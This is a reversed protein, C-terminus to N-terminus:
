DAKRTSFAPSAAVAVHLEKLDLGANVFRDRIQTIACADAATEPRGLVYRFGQVALCEQVQASSALKAALEVTGRFPGDIDRTGTLLGSDDIPQENDTQRHRGIGDLAEFGFGIPNMLTHCGTCAAGSTKADLQQRATLGSELAPLQTDVNPPPDAIHHCLLRQRVFRGRNVPSTRTRAALVSMVAPHGLLGPHTGPGALGELQTASSTVGFFPALRQNVFVQNGTLLTALRSDGEFLAHEVFAKASAALDERAPEFDPFTEADKPADALATIEFLQRYPEWLAPRAGETALLRRAESELNSADRLGGSNALATLQGDPPGETMTYALLTALEHDTLTIAGNQPEAGLESRYLFHPSQLMAEVLVELGLLADRKSAGLQFLEVYRSQESATLPRRFVSSGFTEVVTSACAADALSASAFAAFRALDGAVAAKALRQAAAQFQAAEPGRVRLSFADNQFGQESGPEPNFSAAPHSSDGLLASVSREYQQRTLRWIRRSSWGKTAENCTIPQPGGLPDFSPPVSAQGGSSGGAVNGSGDPSPSDRGQIAGQCGLAGLLCALSATRWCSMGM